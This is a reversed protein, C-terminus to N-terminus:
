RRRARSWSAVGLAGLGALVLTSPEPVSTVDAWTPGVRIEDIFTQTPDAGAAIGAGIILSDVHDNGAGSNMCGVITGDATPAAGGFSTPNIWLSSLGGLGPSAGSTYGVVVLYTLDSSLYSSTATSSHVGLDFTNAVSGLRMTLEGAWTAPRAGAGSSNNFAIIGDNNATTNSHPVTMGTTSPVNLLLSYYLTSNAGYPAGAGLSLRAYENFDGGTPGGITVGGNGVSAPFGSPATLSPTVVHHVTATGATGARAWTPSGPSYLDQQGIIAGGSTYDFPEYILLSASAPTSLFATFMGAAILALSTKM